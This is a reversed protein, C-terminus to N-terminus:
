RSMKARHVFAFVISCVACSAEAIRPLLLADDENEKLLAEDDEDAVPM